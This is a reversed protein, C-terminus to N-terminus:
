LSWWSSEDEFVAALALDDTNEDGTTRRDRLPADDDSSEDDLEALAEDLLLLDAYSQGPGSSPADAQAFSARLATSISTGGDVTFAALLSSTPVAPAISVDPSTNVTSNVPPAQPVVNVVPRTTVVSSLPPQTARLSDQM